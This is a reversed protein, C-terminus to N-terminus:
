KRENAQRVSEQYSENLEKKEKEAEELFDKDIILKGNLHDMEHQIIRSALYYFTKYQRKGHRCTWSLGVYVPRRVEVLQKPCSLCGEEETLKEKASKEIVPNIFVQPKSKGPDVDMVFIRRAYGVQNAALGIGNNRYMTDIMQDIIVQDEQSLPFKVESTPERLFIDPQQVIQM